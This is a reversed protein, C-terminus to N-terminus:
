YLDSETYKNEYCSENWLKVKKVEVPYSVNDLYVNM